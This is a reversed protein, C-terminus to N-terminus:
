ILSIDTPKECKVEYFSNKLELQISFNGIEWNHECEVNNKFRVDFQYQIFKM